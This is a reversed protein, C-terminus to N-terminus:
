FDELTKEMGYDYIKFGLKEYLKVAVENEKLVRLRAANVGKAKLTKLSEVVLKRGVGRGRFEPLVCLDDITGFHESVELPYKPVSGKVFGVPKNNTKAVLLFSEGSALSGRIFSIWKDANEESPSIFREVTFM